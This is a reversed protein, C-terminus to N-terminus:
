VLKVFLRDSAPEKEPNIWALLRNKTNTVEAELGIIARVGIAVRPVRMVMYMPKSGIVSIGRVAKYEWTPFNEGLGHAVIHPQLQGYEVAYGAEGLGVEVSTTGSEFKLAPSLMVKFSQKIEHEISLPHLDHALAQHGQNDALLRVSFRAWDIKTQKQPRFSCAFQFLYFNNQELLASFDVALDQTSSLDKIPYSVPKAISVVPFDDPQIPVEKNSGREIEDPMPELTVEILPDTIQQPAQIIM